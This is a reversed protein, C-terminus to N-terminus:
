TPRQSYPISFAFHSGPTLVIKSKEFFTLASKDSTYNKGKDACAFPSTSLSDFLYTGERGESPYVFMQSIVEELWLPM